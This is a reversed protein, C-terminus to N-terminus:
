QRLSRDRRRRTPPDQQQQVWQQARMLVEDENARVGRATPRVDILPAFGVRQLQGGDARRLERSAIGVSLGGPLSLPTTWSAAGATASGIFTVNTMQELSLVFREMAGQTREDVLAVLRGEFVSATDIARVWASSERVDICAQAAERISAACPSTITRQVVRGVVAQPRQALHRLLREDPLRLTGRLDLIIARASLAAAIERDFTASELREVDVYAIGDSLQRVAPGNPREVKPMSTAHGVSRTITLTRERNNADRVKVLAEGANGRPMQEIMWRQRSWENSAARMRKHESMWASVPFGDLALIETGVVLPTGSVMPDGHLDRIFVRGEALRVRFPLAAAGVAGEASAGRLEAESDDLSTVLNTVASAYADASRAAELRPIVREFVQDIDDDYLDRHAHRVRMASWVRFGALLRAGLFPYSTTDYFVPTRAVPRTRAIPRAALPLPALARLRARVLGAVSDRSLGVIVSDAFVGVSGDDHVIDSTRVLAAMTSSIPVTVQAVPAADRLGGDAIVSAIAADHMALFIPALVTSSDALIAVRPSATANGRYHRSASHSWGDAFLDEDAIPVGLSTGIRRTRETPAVISGRILADGLGTSWVFRDLREAAAQLDRARPLGSSPSPDRLDLVVRASMSSLISRVVASDAADLRASPAIRITVVSDASRLATVPVPPPADLANLAVTTVLRATPDRLVALMRAYAALLASDDTAARVRPAAIILASDWPVGRTAVAPHHLAVTHWLHALRVLRAVGASDSAAPDPEVNPAEAPLPADVDAERLEAAVRVRTQARGDSQQATATPAKARGVPFVGACASTAGVLAFLAPRVTRWGGRGAIRWAEYLVVHRRLM